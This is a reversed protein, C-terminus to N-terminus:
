GAAAAPAEETKADAEKETTSQLKAKAAAEELRAMMARISAETDDGPEAGSIPEDEDLVIEPIDLDAAMAEMIPDLEDAEDLRATEHEQVAFKGANRDSATTTAMADDFGADEAAFPTDFADTVHDAADPALPMDLLAALAAPDGDLRESALEEDSVDEFRMEPPLAAFARAAADCAPQETIEVEAKYDDSSTPEIKEVAAAIEDDSTPDDTEPHWDAILGEAMASARFLADDDGTTVTTDVIRVLQDILSSLDANERTLADIRKQCHALEESRAEYKAELDTLLTMLGRSQRKRKDNAATLREVAEDVRNRLEGLEGM